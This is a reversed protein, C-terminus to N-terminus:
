CEILQMSLSYNSRAQAAKFRLKILLFNNTDLAKM